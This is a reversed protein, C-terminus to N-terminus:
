QAPASKAATEALTAIDVKNVDDILSGNFFDAFKTDEPKLGFEPGALAILKNWGAETMEGWKHGDNPQKFISLTKEIAHV